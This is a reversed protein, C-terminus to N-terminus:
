QRQYRIIAVTNGGIPYMALGPSLVILRMSPIKDCLVYVDSATRAGPLFKIAATTAWPLPLDFRKLIGALTGSSGVELDEHGTPCDMNLPDVLRDPGIVLKTGVAPDASEVTCTPCVIETVTWKGQMLVKTPAGATQAHTFAGGFVSFVLGFVFGRVVAM